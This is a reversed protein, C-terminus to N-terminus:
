QARFAIERAPKYDKFAFPGTGTSVRASLKGSSVSRNPVIPFPRITAVM